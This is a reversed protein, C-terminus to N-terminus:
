SNQETFIERFDGNFQNLFNHIDLIDNQNVSKTNQTRINITSKEQGQEVITIHVILQNCCNMCHLQFLAEPGYTSVVQIGENVFKKNCTNCNVIKKLQKIIEKLESFNMSPPTIFLHDSGM